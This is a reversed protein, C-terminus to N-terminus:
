CSSPHALEAVLLCRRRWDNEQGHFSSKSLLEECGWGISRWGVRLLRGVGRFGLKQHSRLSARNGFEVIAIMRGIGRQRLREAARSLAAGHIQRGRYEPVTYAKYMYVTDPPLKLGAGFSHEAEISELAYWAYNVLHAGTFPPLASTGSPNCGRPWRRTWNLIRILRRRM